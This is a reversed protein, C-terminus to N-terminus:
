AADRVVFHDFDRGLRDLFERDPRMAHCQRLAIDNCRPTVCHQLAVNRAGLQHLESAWRQLQDNDLQDPHLTCRIEYDIGSNLVEGASLWARHASDKVGTVAHYDAYAAKIDLGIWDLLPLLERLRGPYIGASHMGVKFGLRRVQGLADAIGAQLTPEGGSFVVADLLGQRTELWSLIKRWPESQESRRPQLDSNHCYGCRWPCGQLFLVAALQGPYDVTTLPTLGAIILDDASHLPNASSVDTM